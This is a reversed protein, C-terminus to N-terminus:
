EDITEDEREEDYRHCEHPVVEMRREDVHRSHEDTRRDTQDDKEDATGQRDVATAVSTTRGILEGCDHSRNSQTDADHPHGFEGEGTSQEDRGADGNRRSREHDHDLAELVPNTAVQPLAAEGRGTCGPGRDDDARAFWPM